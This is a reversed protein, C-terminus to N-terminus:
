VLHNTKVGAASLAGYSKAADSSLRALKGITEILQERYGKGDLM